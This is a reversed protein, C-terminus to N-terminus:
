RLGQESRDVRLNRGFESQTGLLARFEIGPKSGQGVGPGEKGAKGDKEM